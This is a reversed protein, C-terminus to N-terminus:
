IDFQDSCSTNDSAHSCRDRCSRIAVTWDHPSHQCWFLYRSVKRWILIDKKFLQQRPKKKAQNKSYGLLSGCACFVQSTLVPGPTEGHRSKKMVLLSVVGFILSNQFTQPIRDGMTYPNVTFFRVNVRRRLFIGSKEVNSNVLFCTASFTFTM